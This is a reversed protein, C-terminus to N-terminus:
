LVLFINLQDFFPWKKDINMGYLIDVCPPLNDFFGFDQLRLEQVGGKMCVLDFM